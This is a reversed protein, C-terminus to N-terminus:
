RPTVQEKIHIEFRNVVVMENNLIEGSKQDTQNIERSKSTM